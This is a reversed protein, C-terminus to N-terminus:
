FIDEDLYLWVQYCILKKVKENVYKVFFEKNLMICEVGRFVKDMFFFVIFLYCIYVLKM